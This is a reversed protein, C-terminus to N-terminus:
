SCVFRSKPPIKMEIKFIRTEPAAEKMFIRAGVGEIGGGGGKRSYKIVFDEMSTVLTRLWAGEM